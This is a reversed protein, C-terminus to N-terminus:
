PSTNVICVCFCTAFYCCNRCNKLLNRQVRIARIDCDKWPSFFTSVLHRMLNSKKEEGPFIQPIFYYSQIKVSSAMIIFLLKLPKPLQLVLYTSKKKRADSKKEIPFESNWIGNWRQSSAGQMKEDVCM